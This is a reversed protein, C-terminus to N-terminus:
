VGYSELQKMAMDREWVVQNYAGVPVADDANILKDM